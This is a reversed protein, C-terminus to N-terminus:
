LLFLHKTGQETPLTKTERLTFQRTLRESSSRGDPTRLALFFARFDQSRWKRIGPLLWVLLTSERCHSSSLSVLGALCLFVFPVFGLFCFCFLLSLGFPRLATHGFCIDPFTVRFGM